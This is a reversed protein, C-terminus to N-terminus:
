PTVPRPLVAQMVLTLPMSATSGRPRDEGPFPRQAGDKARRPFPRCPVFPEYVVAGSKPRLFALDIPHALVLVVLYRRLLQEWDKRQPVDHHEGVHDYREEDAALFGDGGKFFDHPGVLLDQEGGLLVGAVVIGRGVRDELDARECGHELQELQGVTRDLHQDFAVGPRADRAVGVVGFIEFGRDLTESLFEAALVFDLRQRPRRDRLELAIHLEVLLDARFDQARDALGFVGRLQGVRNGGVERDFDRVLLFDELDDRDGLAQLPHERQHLALDRDQLDLLLDAAADLALHLLRLALIIEVLLHLRDLLLEAVVVLAFLDDLEFLLDLVGLQRLFRTVLRESLELLELLHARHRGLRRHHAVVEVPQQRDGPADFALDLLVEVLRLGREVHLM